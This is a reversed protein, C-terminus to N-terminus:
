PTTKNTFFINLFELYSDHNILYALCRFWREELHRLMLFHNNTLTLTYIYSEKPVVNYFGINPRVLKMEDSKKDYKFERVQELGIVDNLIGDKQLDQLIQNMYIALTPFKISDLAKVVINVKMVLPPKPKKIRRGTMRTLVLEMEKNVPEALRRQTSGNKLKQNMSMLEDHEKFPEGAKVWKNYETWNVSSHSIKSAKQLEEETFQPFLSRPFQSKSM